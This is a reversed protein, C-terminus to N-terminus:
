ASGVTAVGRVSPGGNGVMLPQMPDGKGCNTVPRVELDDGCADVSSFFGPATGSVVVDRVLEGAEGGRIRRAYQCSISWDHRRADISPVKMGCVLYGDRVGGVMEGPDWGGAGVCTCAMRVLPAFGYGAARMNGTPEAGLEAATERSHMHGELVGGSVLRTRGTGVGEDDFRYCGLSGPITPDDYVDLCGSGIREGLMGAWWAGGAWAAERGLVRDAESPHGFIEHALLAVFDPDMVVAARRRRAPRADLLRAATRAIESARRGAAGLAEMGGRGGETAGVSQVLGGARATASMEVVTDTHGQSVGAGESSAFYKSVSVSRALASSRSIGPVASIIGSCERAAGALAGIGPEESVPARYSGGAAAAPALRVGGGPGRAAGELASDAAERVDAFSGPDSVFGFGWAGAGAVRIGIGSDRGERAYEPRGDEARVSSSSSEEARADCYRAGRGAAYKVARDAM